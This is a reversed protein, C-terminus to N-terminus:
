KRSNEFNFNGSEVLVTTESYTYFVRGGTPISVASSYQLTRWKLQKQTKYSADTLLFRESSAYIETEFNFNKDWNLYAATWGLSINMLTKMRVVMVREKTAEFNETFLKRNIHTEVKRANFYARNRNFIATKVITNQLINEDEDSLYKDGPFTKWIAGLRM